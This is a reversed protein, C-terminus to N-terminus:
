AAAALGAAYILVDDPTPEDKIATVADAARRILAPDHALPNGDLEATALAVEALSPRAGPHERYHAELVARQAFAELVDRLGRVTVETTTAALGLETAVVAADRLSSPLRVSTGATDGAPADLLDLFRKLRRDM